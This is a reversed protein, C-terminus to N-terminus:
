KKGVILLALYPVVNFVLWIIKFLGLFAYGVVDFADRSIPFLKSQMAYVFDPALMFITASLALLGADIITCWMFIKTLKQIDMSNGM